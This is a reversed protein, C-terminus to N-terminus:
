SLNETEIRRTSKRGPASWKSAGADEVAASYVSNFHRHSKFLGAAKAKKVVAAKGPPNDPNARMEDTLLKKLSPKEGVTKEPYGATAPSICLKEIDTVRVLAVGAGSESYRGFCNPWNGSDFAKAAQYVRWQEPRLAKVTGTDLVQYFGPIDGDALIQRLVDSAADRVPVFEDQAKKLHSLAEVIDASLTPATLLQVASTWAPAKVLATRRFRQVALLSDWAIKQADATRTMAMAFAAAQNPGLRHAVKDVAAPLRMYESPVIIGAM